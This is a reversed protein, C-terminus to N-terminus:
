VQSICFYLFPGIRQVRKIELANQTQKFISVFLSKGLEIGQDLKEKKSQRLAELCDM